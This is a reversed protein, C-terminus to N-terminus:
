RALYPGPLRRGCNERLTWGHCLGGQRGQEGCECVRVIFRERSASTLGLARNDKGDRMHDLWREYWSLFDRASSVNPPWFGDSNGILVRGTLPETVRILCLDTCGMEIVQLFLDGQLANPHKVHHFGRPSGDPPQRDM